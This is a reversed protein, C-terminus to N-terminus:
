VEQSSYKAESQLEVEEIQWDIKPLDDWDYEETTALHIADSENKAELYIEEYSTRKAIVRYLRTM